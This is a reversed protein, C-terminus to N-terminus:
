SFIILFKTLKKNLFHIYDKITKTDEISDDIFNIYQKLDIKYARLTKDSLRKRLLCDEYYTELYKKLEEKKM